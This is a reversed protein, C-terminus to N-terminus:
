YHSGGCSEQSRQKEGCGYVWRFAVWQTCFTVMVALLLQLDMGFLQALKEILVLEFLTLFTQVVISKNVQIWVVRTDMADNWKSLVCWSGSIVAVLKRAADHVYFCIRNHVRESTILLLVKFHGDEVLSWIGTDPSM